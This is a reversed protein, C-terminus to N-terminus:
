LDNRDNCCRRLIRRSSALSSKSVDATAASYFSAFCSPPKHPDARYKDAWSDPRIGLVGFGLHYLISGLFEEDEGVAEIFQPSSLMHCLHPIIPDVATTRSLELKQGLEVLVSNGHGVIPAAHIFGLVLFIVCDM